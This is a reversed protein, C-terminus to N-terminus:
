FLVARRRQVEHRPVDTLMVVELEEHRAMMAEATSGVCTAFAACQAHVMASLRAVTSASGGDTVGQQRGPPGLQQLQMPQVKAHLQKATQKSVLRHKTRPAKLPVQSGPSTLWLDEPLSEKLCEEFNVLSHWAVPAQPAEGPTSTPQQQRMSALSPIPLIAHRLANQRADVAQQWPNCYAGPFSLLKSGSVGQLLLQRARSTPPAQADM